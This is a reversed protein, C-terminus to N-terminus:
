SCYQPSYISRISLIRAVSYIYSKCTRSILQGHDTLHLHRRAFFPLLSHFHIKCAEAVLCPPLLGADRKGCIVHFLHSSRCLLIRDPHMEACAVNEATENGLELLLEQVLSLRVSSDDSDVREIVINDIEAIMRIVVEAHHDREVRVSGHILIYHSSDSLGDCHTGRVSGEVPHLFYEPIRGELHDAKRDRLLAIRDIIEGPVKHFNDGSIDLFARRMCSMGHANDAGHEKLAEVCPLERECDDAHVVAAVVALLQLGADHRDSLLPLLLSKDGFFEDPVHLVLLGDGERPAHDVLDCRARVLLDLRHECLAAHFIHTGDLCGAPCKYRREDIRFDGLIQDNLVTERVATRSKLFRADIHRGPVDDIHGLAHLDRGAQVRQVCRHGYEAHDESIIM